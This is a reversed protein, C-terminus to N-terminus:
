QTGWYCFYISYNIEDIFKTFVFDLNDTDDYEDNEEEEEEKDDDGDDYIMTSSPWIRPNYLRSWWSEDLFQDKWSEPIIGVEKM